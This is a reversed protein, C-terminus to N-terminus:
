PPPPLPLLLLRLLLLLILILVALRLLLLQLGWRRIEETNKATVQKDRLGSCKAPPSGMLVHDVHHLSGVCPALYKVSLDRAIPVSGVM